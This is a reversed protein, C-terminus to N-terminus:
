DKSMNLFAFYDCEDLTGCFDGLRYFDRLCGHRCGNQAICVGQLATVHKALIFNTSRDGRKHEFEGRKSQYRGRLSCHLIRRLLSLQLCRTSRLTKRRKTTDEAADEAAEDSEDASEDAVEAEIEM